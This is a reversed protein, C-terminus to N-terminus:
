GKGQDRDRGQRSKQVLYKLKSIGTQRDSGMQLYMNSLYGLVQLLCMSGLSGAGM